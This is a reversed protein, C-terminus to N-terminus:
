PIDIMRIKVKNVIRGNGYKDWFTAVVDYKEEWEMPEGTNVTCKLLSVDKKLFVDKGKFLDPADLIKKGKKDTIVLSCGVSVKGNREKLGKVNKNILLFSEGIPIDTHNLEEDNMVLLVKGPEIHSYTATLGTTFDKKVGKVTQGNCAYLLATCFLLVLTAWRVPKFFNFKRKTRTLKDTWEIGVLLLSIGLGLLIAVSATKILITLEELFSNSIEYFVIRILAYVVAAVLLCATMSFKFIAIMRLRSIGSIAFLRQM